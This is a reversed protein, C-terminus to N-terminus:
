DCWVKLHMEPINFHFKEPGKRSCNMARGRTIYVIYTYTKFSVYVHQYNGMLTDQLEKGLNNSIGAQLQILNRYKKIDVNLKSSSFFFKM